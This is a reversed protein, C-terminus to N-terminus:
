QVHTVLYRLLDDATWEEPAYLYFVEQHGQIRMLRYVEINVARQWGARQPENRPIYLYELNYDLDRGHHSGGIIKM